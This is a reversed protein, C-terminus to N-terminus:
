YAYYGVYGAALQGALWPFLIVPSVGWIAATDVAVEATPDTETTTATDGQALKYARLLLSTHSNM